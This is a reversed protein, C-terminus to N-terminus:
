PWITALYASYRTNLMKTFHNHGILYPEKVNIRQCGFLRFFNTGTPKHFSEIRLGMGHRGRLKKKKENM